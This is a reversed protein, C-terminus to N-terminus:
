VEKTEPPLVEHSAGPVHNYEDLKRRLGVTLRQVDRVSRVEDPTVADALEGYVFREVVRIAWRAEALRRPRNM